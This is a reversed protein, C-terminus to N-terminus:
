MRLLLYDCPLATFLHCSFLVRIVINTCVSCCLRIIDMRGFSVRFLFLVYKNLTSDPFALYDSAPYALTCPWVNLFEDEIEVWKETADTFFVQEDPKTGDRNAEAESYGERLKALNAISTKADPVPGNVGSDSEVFSVKAPYKAHACLLCFGAWFFRAAGQCYSL